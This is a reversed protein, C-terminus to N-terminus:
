QDLAKLSWYATILHLIGNAYHNEYDVLDILENIRKFLESDYSVEPCLSYIQTGDAVDQLNWKAMGFGPRWTFLQVPAYYACGGYVGELAAFSEYWPIPIYKLEELKEPSSNEKAMLLAKEKGWFALRQMLVLCRKKFDEDNDIDYVTRLSCMMQTVGFIHGEYNELDIKESQTLGEDRFNLYLDYYKKNQSVKWAAAYIMPLRFYEHPRINGWMRVVAGTKEDERLYNWDNKETINKQARDAFSILIKRIDEKEELSSLCSDYYLVAARIWFTYQDRSSDIYHTIGDVPSVSRALFGTNESVTACHRIGKFIRKAIPILSEKREVNYRELVGELATGGCIVSDEMGSGWGCPNPINLKIQEPSPLHSTLGNEGAVLYDYFLNTKECFLKNHVYNWAIDIKSM